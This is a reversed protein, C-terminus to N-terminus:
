AREVVLVDKQVPDHRVRIRIPGSPVYCYKGGGGFRNECKTIRKNPDESERVVPVTKVAVQMVGSTTELFIIIENGKEHNSPDSPDIQTTSGVAVMKVRPPVMVTRVAEATASPKTPDTADFRYMGGEAWVEFVIESIMAATDQAREVAIRDLSNQTNHYLIVILPVLVIAMFAIVTMMEISAQAKMNVGDLVTQRKSIM